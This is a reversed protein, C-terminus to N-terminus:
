ERAPACIDAQRARDARAFDADSPALRRVLALGRRTPSIVASAVGGANEDGRAFLVIDIGGAHARDNFTRFNDTNDAYLALSWYAASPGVHIRMPGDHLDYACVSYALDPSPRVITRVAPNARPSHRWGNPGASSQTVRTMAIQMLAYPTVALIATGGLSASALFLAAATATKM